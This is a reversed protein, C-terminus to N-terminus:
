RRLVTFMLHWGVGSSLVKTNKEATDAPGIEGACYCGFLPITKGIESQIAALEDSINDLKGKRGACNYALVGFPKATSAAMAEAAGDAASSIVKANDKAQRGSLSVKFDGSLMLAIASDTYMQGQYYVYTQGANKNASGGTIPFKNGVVQQVGEVLFQNKPSHADAMVVLLRDDPRRGIGGALEAGDTRLRSQLESENAEMTLGAIGLNERIAASVSIGDGGIGTLGVSDVDLCGAQSFSGYTAFGFVIRRPFVSCVGKLARNKDACDEFCEAIIVAHPATSGMKDKLAQAAARGAAFPDADQAAAAQMVIDGGSVADPAVYKDVSLAGCGSLFCASILVLLGIAVKKVRCM